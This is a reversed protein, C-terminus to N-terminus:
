LIYYSASGGFLFVLLSLTILVLILVAFARALYGWVMEPTAQQARFYQEASGYVGIWLYFLLFLLAYKLVTILAGLSEHAILAGAYGMLALASAQVRGLWFTKM